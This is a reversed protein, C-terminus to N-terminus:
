FGRPDDSNLDDDRRLINGSVDLSILGASAYGSDQPESDESDPPYLELQVMTMPCLVELEQM